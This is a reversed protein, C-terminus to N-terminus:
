GQGQVPLEASLDCGTCGVVLHGDMHFSNYMSAANAELPVYSYMFPRLPQGDM